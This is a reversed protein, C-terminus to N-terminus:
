ALLPACKVVLRQNVAIGDITQFHARQFFDPRLHAVFYRKAIEFAAPSAAQLQEGTKTHKGLLEARVPARPWLLITRRITRRYQSQDHFEAIADPKMLPQLIKSSSCNFAADDVPFIM